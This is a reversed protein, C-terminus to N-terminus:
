NSGIKIKIIGVCVELPLRAAQSRVSTYTVCGNLYGCTRGTIDKPFRHVGLCAPQKLRTVLSSLQLGATISDGYGARYNRRM